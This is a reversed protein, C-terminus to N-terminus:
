DKNDGKEKKRREKAKKLYDKLKDRLGTNDGGIKSESADQRRLENKPIDETNKRETKQRAKLGDKSTKVARKDETRKNNSEKSTRITGKDSASSKHKYGKIAM